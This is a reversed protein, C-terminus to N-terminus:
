YFSRSVRKLKKRIWGKLRKIHGTENEVDPVTVLINGDRPPESMFSMLRLDQLRRSEESVPM